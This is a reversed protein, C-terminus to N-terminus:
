THRVLGGYLWHSLFCVTCAAAHAAEKPSLRGEQVWRDLAQQRIHERGEPTIWRQPERLLAVEGAKWLREQAELEKLVHRLAGAKAPGLRRILDDAHRDIYSWVASFDTDDFLPFRGLLAGQVWYRLLTVAPVGSELDVAIWRKGNYLFNATAVLTRRDVQWQAGIFGSERLHLRLRDMFTILGGMDDRPRPSHSAARRRRPLPSPDSFDIRPGRGAIYQTGLVFARADEDWRVYLADAVCPAGFWYETLLRLAKRRFYATWVARATTRYPFPSQFCLWYLVKTILSSLGGGATFVKEAILRGTRLDRVLDVRAGRGRGLNTSKELTLDISGEDTEAQVARGMERSQSFLVCAATSPPM